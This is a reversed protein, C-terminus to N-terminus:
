LDPGFGKTENALQVYTETKNERTRFDVQHTKIPEPTAIPQPSPNPAIAPTSKSPPKSPHKPWFKSALDIIPGFTIVALVLASIIDEILALKSGEPAQRREFEQKLLEFFSPKKGM